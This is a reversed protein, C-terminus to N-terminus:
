EFHLGIDITLVDGEKLYYSTPIGHVVVDNVCLCTAWTYGEVTQFSATGGSESIRKSALEEIALLSIGPQAFALLEQLITGLKKGGRAMGAVEQPTKSDIM